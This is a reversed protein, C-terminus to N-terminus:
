AAAGALARVRERDELLEGAPGEHVIKGNDIVYARSSVELAIFANQEALLISIGEKAMERILAYIEQVIKPALGQSPEDMIFLDPNTVLARAVALMEQEGGSLQGGANRRREHLRPFFKYVEHINWRGPRSAPVILNEEVTLDPFIKRGEPVYGVGLRAISHPRMHGTDHGAVRVSGELRHALGMIGKITTTKGAGNRGLLCVVEGRNVTLSVGHLIHSKGYNVHLGDVQLLTQDSM